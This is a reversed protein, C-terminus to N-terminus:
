RVQWGGQRARIEGDRDLPDGTIRAQVAALLSPPLSSAATRYGGAGQDTERAEALNRIEWRASTRCALGARAPAATLTFTRCYEGSRALFSLGIRVGDAGADAALRDSLDRALLGGAVLSGGQQQVLAGHERQWAFLGLGVALLVSAALSAPHRWRRGASRTRELEDRKARTRELDHVRATDVPTSAERLVALLREPVPESLQPEYAAKIRERQGRYDAVRRATEPDAGMAAEVEARGGADLEGDVYAMLTEDAISM